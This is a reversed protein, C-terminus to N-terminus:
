SNILFQSSMYLSRILFLLAVRVKTLEIPGGCIPSWNMVNVALLLDGV